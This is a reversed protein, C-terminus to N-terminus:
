DIRRYVGVLRDEALASSIPMAQTGAPIKLVDPVHQESYWVNFEAERGEVPNTLVAMLYTAMAREGERAPAAAQVGRM